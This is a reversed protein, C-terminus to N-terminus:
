PRIRQAQAPARRGARTAAPAILRAPVTWDPPTKAWRKLFELFRRIRVPLHERTVYVVYIDLELPEYDPLVVALRGAKLDESVMYYPHM